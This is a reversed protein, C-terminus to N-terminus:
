NSINKRFCHREYCIMKMSNFSGANFIFFL